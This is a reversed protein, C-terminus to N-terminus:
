RSNYAVFGIGALIAVDRCVKASKVVTAKSPVIRKLRGGKEEAKEQAM